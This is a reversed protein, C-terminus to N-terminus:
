FCNHGQIFDAVKPDSKGYSVIRVDLPVNRFKEVSIRIADLIWSAENGFVGPNFATFKRLIM